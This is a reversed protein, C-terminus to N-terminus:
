PNLFNEVLPRDIEIFPSLSAPAERPSSQCGTRGARSLVTRPLPRGCPGGSCWFRGMIDAESLSDARM